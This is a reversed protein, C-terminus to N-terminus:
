LVALVALPAPFIGTPMSDPILGSIIRRAVEVPPAAGKM